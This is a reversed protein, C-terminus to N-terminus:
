RTLYPMPNVPVFKGRGMLRSLEYHLHVNTAYGTKGVVGIDAGKILVDREKVTTSNLHALFHLEVKYASKDIFLICVYLGYGQKHELPNEFDAYIVQGDIPSLARPSVLISKPAIDVGKHTTGKKFWEPISYIEGFKFSIVSTDREVPWM